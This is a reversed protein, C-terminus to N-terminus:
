GVLGSRENVSVRRQVKNIEKVSVSIEQEQQKSKMVNSLEAVNDSLSAPTFSKPVMSQGGGAQNIADLLPLFAATSRANIISEGNSALIPIDDSTGTGPGSILGGQAFQPTPQSSILAIQAAGLAGAIAAMLPALVPPQTGLANSVALATNIVAQIISAEKQKKFAEKKADKEEKAQKENLAKIKADYEERSILGADLAEQLSEQEQTAVESISAIQSELNASIRNQIDQIVMNFLEQTAQISARMAQANTSIAEDQIRTIENQAEKEANIKALRFSDEVAEVDEGKLKAVKVAEVREEELNDIVIKKHDIIAQEEVKLQDKTAKSLQSINRFRQRAKAADFGLITDLNEKSLREEEQNFLQLRNLYGEIDKIRKQTITDISSVITSERDNTIKDLFINYETEIEEASKISAELAAQRVFSLKIEEDSM